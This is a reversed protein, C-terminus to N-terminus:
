AHGLVKEKQATRYTLCIRAAFGFATNDWPIFRPLQYIDSGRSATGWATSVAAEYGAERVMELDSWRYDRGPRGNPYAFLAVEGGIMEELESKSQVIEAWAQSPRLQALIPHAVTHAGIGMGREYLERVHSPEMMLRPARATMAETVARAIDARRGTDMYKLQGLIQQISARKERAGTSPYVDLGAGRLDIQKEEAGRIAEIIRDNWMIGERICGTAAFFTAHLGYRKLIPYATTYNDLYGDDFTIAVARAPLQGSTLKRVADLLPLVNFNRSLVDMQRAFEVEDVEWKLVEDPESLVRHYILIALRPSGIGASLLSGAARLVGNLMQRYMGGTAGSM